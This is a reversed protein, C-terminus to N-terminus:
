PIDFLVETSDDWKVSNVVWEEQPRYFVIMWRTAHNECKQIFIYRIFSEGIKDERVLESGLVKGFRESVGEMQSQTLRAFNALEEEPLPWHQGLIDFAQEYNEKGVLSMVEKAFSKCEQETKLAAIGFSSGVVFLLGILKLIKM